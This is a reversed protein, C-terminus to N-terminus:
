TEECREGDQRHDERHGRGGDGLRAAACCGDAFAGVTDVDNLHDVGRDDGVLAADLTELRGLRSGTLLDVRVARGHDVVDRVEIGSVVLRQTVHAALLQVVVSVAEVAERRSQGQVLRLLQRRDVADELHGGVLEVGHVRGGGRVEQAQGGLAAQPVHLHDTLVDDNADDVATDPRLGHAEAVAGAGVRVAFAVLQVIVLDGAPV